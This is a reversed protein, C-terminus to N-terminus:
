FVLIITKTAITLSRIIPITSFPSNGGLFIIVRLLNMFIIKSYEAIFFLAFPGGAYEVKYGSVLESEGETLDFPARKTEALTSILWM